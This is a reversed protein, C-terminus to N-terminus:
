WLLALEYSMGRLIYLVPVHDWMLRPAIYTVHVNEVSPIDHPSPQSGKRQLSCPCNGDGDFMGTLILRVLKVGGHQEGKHLV